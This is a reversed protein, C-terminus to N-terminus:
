PLGVLCGLPAKLVKSPPLSVPGELGGRALRYLFITALPSATCHIPGLRQPGISNGITSVTGPAPTSRRKELPAGASRWLTSKLDTHLVQTFGQVQSFYAVADRTGVAKRTYCAALIGIGPSSTPVYRPRRIAQPWDGGQGSRPSRLFGLPFSPIPVQGRTLSHFPPPGTLFLPPHPFPHISAAVGVRLSRGLNTATSRSSCGEFVRKTRRHARGDEARSRLRELGLM